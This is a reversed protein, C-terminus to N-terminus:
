QGYIAAAIVLVVALAAALAGVAPWPSRPRTSEIARVLRDEMRPLDAIVAEVRAHGAELARIRKDHEFGERLELRLASLDETM